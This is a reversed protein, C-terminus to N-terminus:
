LDIGLQAFATSAINFADKGETGDESYVYFAFTYAKNESEVIGIYWGCINQDGIRGTGTKAYVQRTSNSSVALASLMTAVNQPHVPLEKRYLKSLLQVQELVSIRIGSGDFYGDPDNGISTTGYQIERLFSEVSGKGSFQDLKQFYWNVSDRMASNLDHNQNWSEFPNDTGDWELLNNQPTIIGAELANLASYIKYTSCPSVRRTTEPLNFTIYVDEQMDYIVASGNKNDYLDSLDIERISIDYQPHYYDESQTICFATFPIQVLFAAILILTICRGILPSFIKNPCFSCAQELRAKLEKKSQHFGNALPMQKGKHAAFNLLTQGYQIYKSDKQLLTLVSWDCYIERDQRMLDFALWVLPHFWFLMKVICFIINGWLDRHHIHVLEHLLIHELEEDSLNNIDLPLLIVPQVTGFSIPSVIKSSQLLTVKKKNRFHVNAKPFSSTIRLDPLIATKKLSLLHSYCGLYFLLMLLMGVLWIIQFASKANGIPSALVIQVTDEIADSSIIPSGSSTAMTRAIEFSHKPTFSLPSFETISNIPVLSLILSFAVFYWCCFTYRPSLKDRLFRRIFILIVIIGLHFLSSILLRVIMM